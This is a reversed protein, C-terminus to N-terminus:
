FHITFGFGIFLDPKHTFIGYGIGGALGYNFLKSKIITKTLTQTNHKVLFDMNFYSEASLPIPSVYTIHAVLNSDRYVTDTKATYEIHSYVTDNKHIYTTDYIKKITQYFKPIIHNAVVTVISDDKVVSVTTIPKHFSWGAYVCLFTYVAFIFGMIIIKINSM